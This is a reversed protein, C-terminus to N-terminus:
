DQHTEDVGAWEQLRPILDAPAQDLAPLRVARDRTEILIQTSWSPRGAVDGRVAVVDGKNFSLPRIRRRLELTDGSLVLAIRPNSFASIVYLGLPIAALATGVVYMRGSGMVWQWGWCLTLLLYIVVQLREFKVPRIGSALVNDAADTGPKPDSM